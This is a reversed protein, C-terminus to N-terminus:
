RDRGARSPARPITPSRRRHRARSCSIPTARRSRHGGRVRRARRRPDKLATGARSRCSRPAGGAAAVHRQLEVPRDRPGAHRGPPHLRRRGARRGDHIGAARLIAEIAGADAAPEEALLRRDVAPHRQARATSARGSSRRARSSTPTPRARRVPAPLGPRACSRREARRAGVHCRWVVSRATASCRRWSGPRRRTTCCCSTARRSWGGCSPPTARAAHARLDRARRRRAPRRRGALRAAHQPPAEHDRLLRSRRRDRGLARRRRAARSYAVLSSLLEAVGGGALPRTSTGSSGARSRRARM